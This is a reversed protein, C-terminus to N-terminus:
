GILGAFAKRKCWLLFAPLVIVLIVMPDEFGAGKMVFLHFAFINIVIPGLVLLGLCRTFPIIVLIGGVLECVKVFTLYGTPAFAAMFHGAPSEPPIPPNPALHLLVMLSAMLFLGGLLVAAIHEAIKM